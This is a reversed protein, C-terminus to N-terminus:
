MGRPPSHLAGGGRWEKGAKGLRMFKQRHRAARAGGGKAGETGRDGDESHHAAPAAPSGSWGQTQTAISDVMATDPTILARGRGLGRSDIARARAHKRRAAAPRRGAASLRSVTHSRRRWQRGPGLDGGAHEEGRQEPAILPPSCGAATV